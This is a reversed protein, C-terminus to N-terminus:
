KANDQLLDLQICTEKFTLCMYKSIIKLNEFSTIDKLYTLLM